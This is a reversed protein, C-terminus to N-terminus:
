GLAASRQAFVGTVLTRYEADDLLEVRDRGGSKASYLAEDALQLAGRPKRDEGPAIVAVGISITVVPRVRSAHHEIALERVGGRMREAILRAQEGDVDYLIAAFEEGGYRALLDLPRGVFEQLRRAVHRLAQDGAQHGYRDNYAKFHDVDILLVAITRGDEIAQQWLRALQEDLVRRNKMGTLADHQALEAILRGELFSTRSRRATHRAGLACALVTILLFACTRLVISPELGYYFASVVFALIPLLVSISASRFPLGLFYFPGLVLLPLILLMELQGHAAAGAVPIAIVVNRAPVAVKAIPLYARLFLPSMSIAALLISTALVLGVCAIYAHSWSGVIAQEIGRLAAVAAAFGCAVQIVVRQDTLHAVAYEGELAASNWQACSGRRLEAAYPSEQFALLDPRPVAAMARVM